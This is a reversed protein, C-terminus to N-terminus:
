GEINLPPLLIHRCTVDSRILRHGCEAMKLLSGQSVASYWTKSMSTSIASYRNPNRCEIENERGEFACVIPRHRWWSLGFGGNWIHRGGGFGHHGLHFLQNRGHQLFKMFTQEKLPNKNTVTARINNYLGIPDHQLLQLFRLTLTEATRHRAYEM